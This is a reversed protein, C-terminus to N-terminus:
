ADVVQEALRLREADAGFAPRDVRLASAVVGVGAVDLDIEVPNRQRLRAEDRSRQIKAIQRRWFLDHADLDISAGGRRRDPQWRRCGTRLVGAAAHNQKPSAVTRNALRSRPFGAVRAPIADAGPLLARAMTTPDPGLPSAAAMVRAWAPSSTVT